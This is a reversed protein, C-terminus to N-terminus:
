LSTRENRCRSLFISLFTKLFNAHAEIDARFQMVASSYKSEKTAVSTLTDCGWVHKSKSPLHAGEGSFKQVEGSFDHVEGQSLKLSLHFHFNSM